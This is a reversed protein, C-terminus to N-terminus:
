GSAQARAQQDNWWRVGTAVAAAAAPGKTRIYTDLITKRGLVQHGSLATIWALQAGAVSYFSMGSRRLDRLQIDGLGVADRCARALRQLKWDPMAQDPRDPHQFLWGAPSRAMAAEIRDHLHPPVPAAVHAGTKQQRLVFGMVRGTRPHALVAADRPDVGEIERWAVRSFGLLDGERQVLWFALEIALAADENEGAVAAAWRHMDDISVVVDRAPASRIRVDDAVNRLLGLQPRAWNLLLRLVRLTAGAVHLGKGALLQDRLDGVMAPTLAEVPTQGDQAWAALTRLRGRYERQTAPKLLTFDASAQYRAVLEGFRVVRPLARGTDVPAGTRALRVQDNLQMARTVAAARDNGLKVNTFGLRRASASPKWHGWETGDVGTHFFLGPIQRKKPM